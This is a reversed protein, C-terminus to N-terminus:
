FQNESSVWEGAIPAQDAFVLEKGTEEGLKSFSSIDSTDM